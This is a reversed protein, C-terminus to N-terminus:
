LYSEYFFKPNKIIYGIFGSRNLFLFDLPDFYQNFRERVKYYYDQGKTSLKKEEAELFKRVLLTNIKKNKIANYFNILHPNLDNFIAKKGALNFGVVGSGM